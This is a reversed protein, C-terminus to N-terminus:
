RTSGVGALKHGIPRPHQFNELATACRDVTGKINELLLTYNKEAQELRGILVGIERETMPNVSSNSSPKVDNYDDQMERKAKDIAKLIISKEYENPSFIGNDWNSLTKTSVKLKEAIDKQKLGVSEIAKKLMGKEFISNDSM